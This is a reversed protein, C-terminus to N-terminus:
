PYDIWKVERIAAIWGKFYDIQNQWSLIATMWEKFNVTSNENLAGYATVRQWDNANTKVLQWENDSTTMKKHWENGNTAMRKWVKDRTTGITKVQQRENDSTTGSVTM